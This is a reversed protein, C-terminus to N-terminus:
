LYSGADDITDTIYHKECEEPFKRATEKLCDLFERSKTKRVIEGFIESLWSFDDASCDNRIFNITEPLHSSIYSSLEESYEDLQWYCEDCIKPRISLFRKLAENVTISGIYGKFDAMTSHFADDSDFFHEM